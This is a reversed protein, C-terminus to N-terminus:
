LFDIESLVVCGWDQFRIWISLPSRIRLTVHFPNGVFCNAYVTSENACVTSENTNGKHLCTVQLKEL